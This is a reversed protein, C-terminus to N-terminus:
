VASKLTFIVAATPVSSCWYKPRTSSSGSNLEAGMWCRGTANLALCPPTDSVCDHSGVDTAVPSEDVQATVTALLVNLSASTLGVVATSPCRRMVSASPAWTFPLVADGPGTVSPLFTSPSGCAAGPSEGAAPSYRGSALKPTGGVATPSSVM